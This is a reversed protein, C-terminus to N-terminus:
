KGAGEFFFTIAVGQLAWWEGPIADIGMTIMMYATVSTMGIGLVARVVRKLIEGIQM